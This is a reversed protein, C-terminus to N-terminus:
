NLINPEKDKNFMKLIEYFTMKFLAFTLKSGFAVTASILIRKAMYKLTDELETDESELNRKRAKTYGKKSTNKTYTSEDYVNRLVSNIDNRSPIKGPKKM